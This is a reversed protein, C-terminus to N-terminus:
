YNCYLLTFLTKLATLVQSNINAIVTCLYDKHINKNTILAHLNNEHVLRESIIYSLTIIAKIYSSLDYYFQKKARDTWMIFQAEFKLLIVM